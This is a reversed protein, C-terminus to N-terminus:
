IVKNPHPLPAAHISPAKDKHYTRAQVQLKPHLRPHDGSMQKDAAVSLLLTHHLSPLLNAPHWGHDVQLVRLEHVYSLLHRVCSKTSTNYSLPTNQYLPFKPAPVSPSPLVHIHNASRNYSYKRSLLFLCYHLSEAVLRCCYQWNTNSSYSLRLAEPRNDRTPSLSRIPRNHLAKPSKHYTQLRHYANSSHSLSM